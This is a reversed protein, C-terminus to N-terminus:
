DQARRCQVRLRRADLTASMVRVLVRETGVRKQLQEFNRMAKQSLRFGRRISGIVGFFVPHPNGIDHRRDLSREVRRDQDDSGKRASWKRWQQRLSEATWERNTASSKVDFVLTDFPDPAEGRDIRIEVIILSGSSDVGWLRASSRRADIRYRLWVIPLPWGLLRPWDWLWFLAFEESPTLQGCAVRVTSIPLQVNIYRNPLQKM